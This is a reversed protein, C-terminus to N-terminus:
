EIRPWWYSNKLRFYTNELGMHGSLHHDHALELIKLLKNKPIVLLRENKRKKFLLADDLEFDRRANLLLRRRWEDADERIVEDGLYKVLDYYLDNNM